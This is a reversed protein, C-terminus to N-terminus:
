LLNSLCITMVFRVQANFHQEALLTHELTAHTVNLMQLQTTITQLVVQAVVLQIVHPM